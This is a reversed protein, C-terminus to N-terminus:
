HDFEFEEHIVNLILLVEVLASIKVLIKCACLTCAISM